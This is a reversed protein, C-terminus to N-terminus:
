KILTATRTHPDYCWSQWHHKDRGASPGIIGNLSVHCQATFVQRGTKTMLLQQQDFDDSVRLPPYFYAQGSQTKILPSESNIMQAIVHWLYWDGAIFYKENQHVYQYIAKPTHYGKEIAELILNQQLSLGTNINPLQELYRWLAENIAPFCENKEKLIAILTEPTQQRLANWLSNAYTLQSPSIAVETNILSRVQDEHNNQQEVSADIWLIEGSYHHKQYWDLLFLLLLQNSLHPWVWVVITKARLTNQLAQQDQAAMRKTDPLGELQTWATIFEARKLLFSQYDTSDLLPGICFLDKWPLRQGAINCQKLTTSACDGCTINVRSNDINLKNPPQPPNLLAQKLAPWSAFGYERAIVFQADTLTFPQGSQYHSLHEAIRYRSSYNSQDVSRKLAKAEQKLYHLSPSLPLAKRM